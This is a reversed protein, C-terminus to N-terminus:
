FKFFYDLMWGSVTTYYMMLLICGVMCVLRPHAVQQGTTGAGKPAPKAAGHGARASPREMTLVPVGMILVLFDPLVARVVCAALNGYRPFAGVNGIGVARGPQGPHLAPYCFGEATQWSIM